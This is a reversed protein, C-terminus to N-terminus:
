GQPLTIRLRLLSRDQGLAFAEGSPGFRPSTYLPVSANAFKAILHHARDFVLTGACMVATCMGHGRRARGCGTVYTNGAADVTVDCGNTGGPGVSPFLGAPIAFSDVKHGDRDVYIVHGTDDSVMVLRGHTDLSVLHLHDALDPDSSAVGGIRWVFKGTPSFKQVVGPQQGDLVYVNGASDVAVDFTTTFQGNGVGPTGFQRVFRGESTFVEVRSDGSDSVYVDGNAGVAIRGHVDTPDHPDGSIFHFEGPGRGPKGWRRLVKGDPSIATVRQSLDTVYLTGDPGVALANPHRLGLSRDSYRAVVTFPTPLSQRRAAPKSATGSGGGGCGVVTAAVLAVAAAIAARSRIPGMKNSRENPM